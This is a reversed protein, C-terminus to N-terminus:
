DTEIVENKHEGGWAICTYAGLNQGMQAPDGNLGRATAMERSSRAEGAMEGLYKIAWLSRYNIPDARLNRPNQPNKHPHALVGRKVVVLVGATTASARPFDRRARSVM